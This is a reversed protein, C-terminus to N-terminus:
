IKEKKKRSFKTRTVYGVGVLFLRPPMRKLKKNLEGFVKTKESNIKSVKFTVGKLNTKYVEGVKASAEKKFQLVVERSKHRTIKGYVGKLRASSSFSFVLGIFIIAVLLYNKM